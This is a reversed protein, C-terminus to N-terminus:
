HVCSIRDKENNSYWAYRKGTHQLWFKHRQRDFNYKQKKYKDAVIQMEWPALFQGKKVNVIKGTRGCAVLLDTQRCLFAPIQLVDVAQAVDKVQDTEHVDTLTPTGSERIDSMINLGKYMGIGRKGLISSRNAKDFSSKFIYNIDLEDCIEKIAANCEEAHAKSEIQCPGLIATFPMQNNIIFNNLKVM